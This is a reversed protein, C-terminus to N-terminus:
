KEPKMAPVENLEVIIATIITTGINVISHKGGKFWHYDGADLEIVTANSGTSDTIAMKGGEMAYLLHDPHFHLITREEPQFDMKLLRVRENEMLKQYVSGAIKVADQSKATHLLCVFLATFLIKIVHRKM